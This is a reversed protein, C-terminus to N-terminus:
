LPEFPHFNKQLVRQLSLKFNYLSFNYMFYIILSVQIKYGRTTKLILYHIVKPAPPPARLSLAYCGPKSSSQRVLFAGPSQRSLIELSIERPIGSQFWAAGKLENQEVFNVNDNRRKPVSPPYIKPSSNATFLFFIIEFIFNIDDFYMGSSTERLYHKKFDFESETCRSNDLLTMSMLSKRCSDGFKSSIIKDPDCIGENVYGDSITQSSGSTVSSSTTHVLPRSDEASRLLGMTLRKVLPPKDTLRRCNNMETPSNDEESSPSRNTINVNEDCQVNSKTFLMHPRQHNNQQMNSNHTLSPREVIIRIDQM